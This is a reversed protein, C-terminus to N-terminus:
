MLRRLVEIESVWFRSQYSSIFNERFEEIVERICTFSLAANNYSHEFFRHLVCANLHQRLRSLRKQTAKIQILTSAVFAVAQRVTDRHHRHSLAVNRIYEGMIAM